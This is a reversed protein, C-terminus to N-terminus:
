ASDGAVQTEQGHLLEPLVHSDPVNAATATVSHILKTQSDMGIHAKM